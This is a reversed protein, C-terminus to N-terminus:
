ADPHDAREHSDKFPDLQAHVTDAVDGHFEDIIHPVAEKELHKEPGPSLM